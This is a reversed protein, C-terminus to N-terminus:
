RKSARKHEYINYNSKKLKISVYVFFEVAAIFLLAYGFLESGEQVANKVWRQMPELTEVDFLARWVNKTGFLRSFVLVSLLGATFVGFSPISFYEELNDVIQKKQRCVLFVAIALALLAM